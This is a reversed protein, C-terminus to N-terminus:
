TLLLRTNAVYIVDGASVKCPRNTVKYCGGDEVKKIKIGNKSGLDELYWSDLSYNLVGHLDDIFTGYECETLDVDVDEQENKKGIILATRGSLDWSKLPKDREDLLVLQGVKLSHTPTRQYEKESGRGGLLLILDAASLLGFLLILVQIWLPSSGQYIILFSICVVCALIVIDLTIKLAKKRGM